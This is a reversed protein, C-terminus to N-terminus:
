GPSYGGDPVPLCAAPVVDRLLGYRRKIRAMRSCGAEKSTPDLINKHLSSKQDRTGAFTNAESQCVTEGLLPMLNDTNGAVGGIAKWATEMREIQGVWAGAGFKRCDDAAALDVADDVIHTKHPRLWQTVDSDLREFLYHADIQM